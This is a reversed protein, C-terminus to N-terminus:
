RRARHPGDGRDDEADTARLRQVLRRRDFRDTRRRSSGGRLKEGIGVGGPRPPYLRVLGRSGLFEEQLRRARVRAVRLGEGAGDARLREADPALLVARLAPSQGWGAQARRPRSSSRCPPRPVRRKNAPGEGPWRLLRARRDPHWLNPRRRSRPAATLRRRFAAWSRWRPALTRSASFCM